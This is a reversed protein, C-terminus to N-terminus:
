KNYGKKVNEFIKFMDGFVSLLHTVKFINKDLTSIGIMLCKLSQLKKAGQTNKTQDQYGFCFQAEDLQAGRAM